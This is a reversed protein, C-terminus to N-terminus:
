PSRQKPNWERARRRAEALQEFTMRWRLQDLRAAPEQRRADPHTGSAALELWMYAAVDDQPVGQGDAYMLGLYRQATAKGQDAALRFWRAAEAEDQPIGLQGGAYMVGLAVRSGAHAQNAAARWWRLAEAGDQPVGDGAVYRYGLNFQAEADGQEALERLEDLPQQAHLRTGPGLTSSGILIAALAIVRRHHIRM